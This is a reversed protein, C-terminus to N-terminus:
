PGIIYLRMCAKSANINGHSDPHTQWEIAGHSLMWDAVRQLHSTDTLNPGPCGNEDGTGRTCRAKPDRRARRPWGQAVLENLLAYRQCRHPSPLLAGTTWDSETASTRQTRIIDPYLPLEGTSWEYRCLGTMDPYTRIHGPIAPNAISRRDASVRIYASPTLPGNVAHNPCGGM